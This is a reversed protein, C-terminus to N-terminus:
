SNNMFSKYCFLMMTYLIVNKMNLRQVVINATPTSPHLLEAPYSHRDPWNGLRTELPPVSAWYPENM